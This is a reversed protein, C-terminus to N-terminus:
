RRAVAVEAEVAAESQVDTDPASTNSEVDTSIPGDGQVRATTAAREIEMDLADISGAGQIRAAQTNPLAYTWEGTELHVDETVKSETVLAHLGEIVAENTFGIKRAIEEVTLPYDFVRLVSEIHRARDTAIQEQKALLKLNDARSLAGRLMSIGLFGIVSAWLAGYLVTGAALGAGLLVGSGAIYLLGMGRYFRRSRLPLRLGGIRPRVMAVRGTRAPLEDRLDQLHSKM